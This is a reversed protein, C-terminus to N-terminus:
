ILGQLRLRCSKTHMFGYGGWICPSTKFSHDDANKFFSCSDSSFLRLNRGHLFCGKFEINRATKEDMRNIPKFILHSFFMRESDNLHAISIISIKPKNESTYLLQHIDLPAGEMWAQFGPAALLNNLHISLSIRDKPPFFTDIGLVGIKNFEPTQVQRILDALDLNKGEKWCRAIITSILIHERSKIPDAAIGLLGLISSTISLIRERMADIDLSFEKSPAEFSSLISLPVGANSAPTYIEMSVANRFDRIRQPTEDWTKLGERWTKAVEEAYAELSKGKREAEGRDIWPEFEEASLDPFTLLINGMDGKPDIIISPISNLAAEELLTIGLGTKGSGTMGVCVAHTTLDKSSYLLPEDKVKETLPDYLKGLYFTGPKEFTPMIKEGNLNTLSKIKFNLWELGTLSLFNL